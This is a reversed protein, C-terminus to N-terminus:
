VSDLQLFHQTGSAHGQMCWSAKELMSAIHMGCGGQAAHQVTAAALLQRM